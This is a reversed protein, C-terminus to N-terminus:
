GRKLNKLNKQAEKLEKEAREIQEQRRRIIYQAEKEKKKQKNKKLREDEDIIKTEGVGIELIKPAPFKDSSNFFYSVIARPPGIKAYIRATNPNDVWSQGSGGYGKARFFKGEHNVVIYLKLDKLNDPIESM